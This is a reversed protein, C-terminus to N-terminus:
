NWHSENIIEFTTRYIVTPVYEHQLRNLIYNWISDVEHAPPQVICTARLQVFASKLIFKWQKQYCIITQNRKTISHANPHLEVKRHKQNMWEETELQITSSPVLLALFHTRICRKGVKHPENKLPLIDLIHIDRTIVARKHTTTIALRISTNFWIGVSIATACRHRSFYPSYYWLWGILIHNLDIKQM